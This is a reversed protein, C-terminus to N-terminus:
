MINDKWESAVQGGEPGQLASRIMPQVANLINALLDETQSQVAVLTEEDDSNSGRV